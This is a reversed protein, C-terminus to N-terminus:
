LENHNTQLLNALFRFGSTDFPVFLLLVQALWARALVPGRPASPSSLGKARWWKEGVHSSKASAFSHQM